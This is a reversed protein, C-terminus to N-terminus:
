QLGLMSQFFLVFLGYGGTPILVSLFAPDYRLPSYAGNAINTIADRVNKLDALNPRDIEAPGQGEAAVIRPALNELAAWRVRGAARRSVFACALLLLLSVANILIMSMPWGWNDFLRSRSVVMLLMVVFPLYLRNGIEETHQAAYKVDIYGELCDSLSSLVLPDTSGCPLGLALAERQVVWSPWATPKDALENLLKRTLLTADLIYFTLFVFSLIALLLFILDIWWAEAGRTPRVPSGCVFFVGFGFILYLVTACLTRRLRNAWRADQVYNWFEVTADVVNNDSDGTRASPAPGASFNPPTAGSAEDPAFYDRWARLRYSQHSLWAWRILGVVLLVILIRVWETPWVSVGEGLALPEGGPTRSLGWFLAASVFLVIVAGVGFWLKFFSISAKLGQIAQETESGTGQATSRAILPKGEFSRWRLWLGTMGVLLMLSGLWQWADLRERVGEVDSAVENLRAVLREPQEPLPTLAVPRTRGIEYLLPSPQAESMTETPAIALRVAHYIAAQASDRFPPFSVLARGGEPSRVPFPDFPSAVLMNHAVRVAQADWLRADLDTTFFVAEPFRPRLAELIVLKDYADTGLIGIARIGAPDFPKADRSWVRHRGELFAGLREIYDFQIEGEAAQGAPGVARKLKDEPATTKQNEDNERRSSRATLGDLGRLYFYRHVNEQDPIEPHRLRDRLDNLSKVDPQSAAAVADLLARGYVSDAESLLVVHHHPSHRLEIGRLELEDVLALALEEDLAGVSQWRVNPESKASALPSLGFDQTANSKLMKGVAARTEGTSDNVISVDPATASPSIIRINGIAPLTPLDKFAVSDDVMQRLTNSSRPGIITVDIKPAVDGEFTKGLLIRLRQFPYDEFEEERLWFVIRAKSGPKSWWEYPVLLSADHLADSSSLVAPLSADGSPSRGARRVPAGDRAPADPPLKSVLGDM